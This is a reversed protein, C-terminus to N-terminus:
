KAPGVRIGEATVNEDYQEKPHTEGCLRHHTLLELTQKMEMSAKTGVPCYSEALVMTQMLPTVLRRIADLRDEPGRYDSSLLRNLSDMLVPPTLM